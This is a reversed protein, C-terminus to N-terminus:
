LLCVVIRQLHLDVLGSSVGWGDGEDAKLSWAVRDVQEGWELGPILCSSVAGIGWFVSLNDVSAM